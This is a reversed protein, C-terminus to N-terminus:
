NLRSFQIVSMYRANRHITITAPVFDKEDANPIAMFKQPNRDVMPFWSSQIQVKIRHGALFTHAVDNLELKVPTIKEPV